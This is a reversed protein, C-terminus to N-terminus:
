RRQVARRGHRDADRLPGSSEGPATDGGASRMYDEKYQIATAELTYTKYEYECAVLMLCVLCLLVIKMARDKM